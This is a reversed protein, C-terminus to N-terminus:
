RPREAKMRLSAKGGEDEGGQGRDGFAKSALRRAYRGRVQQYREKEREDMGQVQARGSGPMAARESHPRSGRSSLRPLSLDRDSVSTAGLCALSGLPGREEPVGDM